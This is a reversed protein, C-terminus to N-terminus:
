WMLPLKISKQLRGFQWERLDQEKLFLKVVAIDLDSNNTMEGRYASGFLVVQSINLGSERLKDEFFSIIESVRKEVM